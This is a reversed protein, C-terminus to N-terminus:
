AAGSSPRGRGGEGRPACMVTRRGPRRRVIRILIGVIRRGTRLVPLAVPVIVPIRLHQTVIIDQGLGGRPRFAAVVEVQDILDLVGAVQHNQPGVVKVQHPLLFLLLQEPFDPVADPRM